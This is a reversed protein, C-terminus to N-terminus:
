HKFKTDELQATVFPQTMVAQAAAWASASAGGDLAALVAAMTNIQINIATFKADFKSLETILHTVNVLGNNLGDNAIITNCNILVKDLESFMSVRADSKNHFSILVFSGVAPVLVFGATSDVAVNLQVDDILYEDGVIEVSCTRAAEDVSKVKAVASYFKDSQTQLKYLASFADRIKRAESM